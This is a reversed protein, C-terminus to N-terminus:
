GSVVCGSSGKLDIIAALREEALLILLSAVVPDCEILIIIEVADRKIFVPLDDGGDRVIQTM